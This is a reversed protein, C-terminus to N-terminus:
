PAVALLYSHYLGNTEISQKLENWEEKTPIHVGEFLEKVKDSLDEEFKVRPMYREFFIGNAYESKEFEYFKQKKEKAIESSAKLAYFRLLQFYIGTFEISEPSGYFMKNKALYANLSM